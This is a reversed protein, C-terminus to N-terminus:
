RFVTLDGDENVFKHLTTLLYNNSFGFFEVADGFEVLFLWFLDVCEVLKLM